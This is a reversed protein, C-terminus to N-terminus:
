ISSNCKALWPHPNLPPYDAIAQWDSVSKLWGEAAAVISAQEREAQLEEPSKEQRQQQQLQQQQLTDTDSGNSDSILAKAWGWPDLSDAYMSPPEEEVEQKTSTTPTGEREEDTEPALVASSTASTPGGGQQEQEEEEEQERLQRFVAIPESFDMWFDSNNGPKIWEPQCGDTRKFVFKLGGCQELFGAVPIQVVVSFVVASGEAPQGEIVPAHPQLATQWATAGCPQSVSPSTHWGQPISNAWSAHPGDAVSWHLLISRLSDHLPPMAVSVCGLLYPVDDSICAASQTLVSAGPLWSLPTTHPPFPDYLSSNPLTRQFADLRRAAHHKLMALNIADGGGLASEAGDRLENIAAHAKGTVESLRNHAEQWQREAEVAPERAESAIRQAQELAPLLEQARSFAEDAASKIEAFNTSSTYCLIGQRRTVPRPITRLPRYRLLPSYNPRLTTM